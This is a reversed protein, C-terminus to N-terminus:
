HIFVHQSFQMCLYLHWPRPPPPVQALLFRMADDAQNHHVANSLVTIADDAANQFFYAKAQLFAM